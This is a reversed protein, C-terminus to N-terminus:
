KQDNSSLPPLVFLKMGNSLLAYRASWQQFIWVVKAIEIGRKGFEYEKEIELTDWKKLKGTYM